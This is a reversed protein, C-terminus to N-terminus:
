RDGDLDATPKNEILPKTYESGDSRWRGDRRAEIHFDILRKGLGCQAPAVCVRRLLGDAAGSFSNRM